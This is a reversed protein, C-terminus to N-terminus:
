LSIIHSYATNFDLKQAKSSIYLVFYPSRIGLLSPVPQAAGTHNLFLTLDRRPRILTPAHAERSGRM